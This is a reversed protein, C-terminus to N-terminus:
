RAPWGDPWRDMQRMESFNYMVVTEYTVSM